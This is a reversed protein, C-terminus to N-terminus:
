ALGAAENLPQQYTEIELAEVRAVDVPVGGLAASEYVAMCVAQAKYGELGDTEVAGGHRCAEVFEHIEQAVGDRIGFPFLRANEEQSLQALYAEQLAEVSTPQEEGRLLLGEGFDLSGSEGYVIQRGLRQGPSVISEAWLGTAGSEFELLAFTTDEITASVPDKLNERDRFRTPDYQRSLATVRVIPGLHYRMLDAYHVGGDLLWGGGAEELHDRWGWYWRRDKVDLWYIQRPAGLRGSRLTWNLARHRLARRYNEAVALLVGRRGAADLMRRGARLTLALPKEILVHKGAEIAPLAVTHHLRHAVSIDVADLDKEADLLREVSEHVRPTSGQWAAIDRATKEAAERAVDCCAVIEFGRYGAQWLAAFGNKVHGRMMGGCGVLAIRLNTDM